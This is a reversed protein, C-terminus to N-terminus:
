KKTERVNKILWEREVLGSKGEEVVRAITNAAEDENLAIALFTEEEEYDTIVDVLYAHSKPTEGAQLAEHVGDSVWNFTTAPAQRINGLKKVKVPSDTGDPNVKRFRKCGNTCAWIPPRRPINDGGM